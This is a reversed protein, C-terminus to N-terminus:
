HLTARVNIAGPIAEAPEILDVLFIRRVAGLSPETGGTEAFQLAEKDGLLAKALRQGLFGAGGTIMIAM